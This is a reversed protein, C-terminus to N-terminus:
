QPQNLRLQFGLQVRPRLPDNTNVFVFVNETSGKMGGRWKLTVNLTAKEGPAISEDSFEAKTCGCAPHEVSLTLTKKGTNIFSVEQNVEQIVSQMVIDRIPNEIVLSSKADPTGTVLLAQKGYRHELITRQAIWTLGQDLIIAQQDDLAALTVLRNSDSLYIIAPRNQNLLDNLTLNQTRLNLGLKAAGQQVEELTFERKQRGLANWIEERSKSVNLLQVLAGLSEYAGNDPVPETKNESIPYGIPLNRNGRRTEVEYEQYSLCNSPVGAQGRFAETFGSEYHTMLAQDYAVRTVEGDDWLVLYFGVPNSALKKQPSIYVNRHVYLSTYALVDRTGAAKPSGVMSGDLRRPLLPSLAILKPHSRTISSDAYRNDPNTLAVAFDAENKLGYAPLDSSADKDIELISTPYKGEHRSRYTTIAKHLFKLIRVGNNPDGPVKDGTFPPLLSNKPSSLSLDQVAVQAIATDFALIVALLLHSFSKLNFKM